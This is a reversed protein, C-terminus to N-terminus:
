VTGNVFFSSSFHQSKKSYLIITNRICVVLSKQISLTASNLMFGSSPGGFHMPKLSVSFPFSASLDIWYEQGASLFFSLFFPFPFSSFYGFWLLLAGYVAAPWGGEGLLLPPPPPPPFPPPPEKRFTQGRHLPLRTRTPDVDAHSMSKIYM